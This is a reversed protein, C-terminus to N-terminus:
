AFFRRGDRAMRRLLPSARYRDEGYEEQLAALRAVVTSAGLEDAWALLGRPYNVGRTMALDIDAPSAVRLFVADAAENVLMAVVRDVIGAGLARDTTPEPKTAGDRYDYYGRGSKRGLFGAEVLRQQTLSPKYRPDYFFAEFVSRTVAFNVDHGIFDMLEFPGMRFGGLERLAWDVTAADAAGEELLRWAEGYFPRAIRNVIFGPTDAAVVTTKGWRDVLARTAALVEPATSVGPVIEVLPLVTAPNFFHVGIVREARQCAAAISSVSLSSTNTALVCAPAVVAELRAFSDRKVDLREVIAEVVIGCDAFADM